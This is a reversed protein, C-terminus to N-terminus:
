QRGTENDSREQFCLAAFRVGAMGGGVAMMVLGAHLGTVIGFLEAIGRSGSLEVIVGALALALGGAGIRM